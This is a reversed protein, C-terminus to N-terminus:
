RELHYVPLFDSELIKSKSEILQLQIAWRRQHEKDQESPIPMARLLFNM